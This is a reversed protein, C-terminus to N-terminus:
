DTGSKFLYRYCQYRVFLRQFLRRHCYQNNDDGQEHGHRRDNSHETTSQFQVNGSKLLLNRLLHRVAVPLHQLLHLVVHVSDM